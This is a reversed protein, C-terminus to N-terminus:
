WGRQGGGWGGGGGNRNGGGGWGNQKPQWVDLPFGAAALAAIAAQLTQPNAAVEAPFMLDVRLTGGSPSQLKMPIGVSIIPPIGGAPVPAPAAWSSVPAPAGGNGNGAALAQLRNLEVQQEASLM